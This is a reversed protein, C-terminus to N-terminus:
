SVNSLLYNRMNLNFHKTRFYEGILRTFEKFSSYYTLVLLDKKSINWSEELVMFEPSATPLWIPILVDKHKEFYTRIKHSKYHQPAKDLFLYCKPFKYHIQKLYHYFSDENFKDYQRFLQKGTISIAEFLCSYKHSCTITVVPRTNKDIWLVKRVLSYFFFFFFSQNM